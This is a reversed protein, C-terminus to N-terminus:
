LKYEFGLEVLRTNATQVRNVFGTEQLIIEDGVYTKFVDNLTLRMTGKGKLVKKSAGLNVTYYAKRITNLGKNKGFYQIRMQFKAVGPVKYMTQFKTMWNFGTNLNVNKLTRKTEFRTQYGSGSWSFETRSGLAYKLYLESGWTRAKDQNVYSNVIVGNTGLSSTSTIADTKLRYFNTLSLKLDGMSVDYTLEMTHAFEPLLKPNGVEMVNTGFYNPLPNLQDVEPRNIKRSYIFNVSHMTKDGFESGLMFSPYITFYDNGFSQTEGKNKGNFKYYEVRGGLGLTVPGLMSGFQAFGAYKRQKYDLERIATNEAANGKSNLDLHALKAGSEMELVGGLLTRNYGIELNSTNGSQKQSTTSEAGFLSAGKRHVDGSHKGAFLSVNLEAEDKFLHMFNAFAGYFNNKVENEKPVFGNLPVNSVDFRTKTGETEAFLETSIKTSDSISYSAGFMGMIMREQDDYKRKQFTSWEGALNKERTEEESKENEESVDLNVFLNLKKKNLGMNVGLQKSNTPYAYSGTVMLEKAQKNQKKLVVNIIGGLGEPDNSADPATIIEIKEISSAPIRKLASAGMMSLATEKGNILVFVDSEGRILVNGKVDTEVGPATGVLEVASGGTTAVDKGVHIIKKGPKSEMYTREAVVTAEKLEFTSASMLIKGLRVKKENIVIGKKEYMSYGIVSIKMNYRGQPVASFRFTGDLESTTQFLKSSDSVSLLQIHAFPLEEGTKESFVKGTLSQGYGAVVCGLFLILGVIKHM